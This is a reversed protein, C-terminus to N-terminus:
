FLMASPAERGARGGSEDGAMGSSLSDQEPLGTQTGDGTAKAEGSQRSGDGEAIASAMTSAMVKRLNHQKGAMTATAATAAM